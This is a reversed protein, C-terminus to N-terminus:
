AGPHGPGPPGGNDTTRALADALATHVRDYVAVQDGSDLHDLRAIDDDVGRLLRDTDASGGPAPASDDM